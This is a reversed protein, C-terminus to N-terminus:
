QLEDGSNELVLARDFGFVRQLAEFADLSWDEAREMSLLAKLADLSARVFESGTAAQVHQPSEPNQLLAGAM